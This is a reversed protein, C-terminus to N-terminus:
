WLGESHRFCKRGTPSTLASNATFGQDPLSPVATAHFPPIVTLPFFILLHIRPTTTQPQDAATKATGTLM